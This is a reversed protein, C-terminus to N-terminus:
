TRRATWTFTKGPCIRSDSLVGSATAGRVTAEFGPEEVHGSPDLRATAGSQFTGAAQNPCGSEVFTYGTEILQKGDPTLTFCVQAGEPTTGTYRIGDRRCLPGTAPLSIPGTLTTYTVNESSGCLNIGAPSYPCIEGLSAVAIVIPIVWYAAVLGAVAGLGYLAARNM